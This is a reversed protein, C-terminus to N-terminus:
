DWKDHPIKQEPGNLIEMYQKRSVSPNKKVYVQYAREDANDFKVPQLSTGNSVPLKGKAKQRKLVIEQEAKTKKEFESSNDLKAKCLEALTLTGKSSEVIGIFSDLHEYINPYKSALKDAQQGYKLNRLDRKLEERERKDTVRDEAEQETLGDDILRQKLKGDREAQEKDAKEKELLALRDRLKKNEQKERIIAATVKDAKPKPLEEKEPESDDETEDGKAEDEVGDEDDELEIEDIDDVEKEGDAFLQLNINMFGGNKLSADM